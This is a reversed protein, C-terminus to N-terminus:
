KYRPDCLNTYARLLLRHETLLANRRNSIDKLTQTQPLLQEQEIQYRAVAEEAQIKVLAKKIKLQRNTETQNKLVNTRAQAEVAATFHASRM